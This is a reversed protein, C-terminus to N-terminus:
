TIVRMGFLGVTRKVTVLVETSIQDRKKHDDFHKEQLHIKIGGQSVGRLEQLREQHEGKDHTANDAAQSADNLELVMRHINVATKENSPAYSDVQHTRSDCINYINTKYDLSLTM